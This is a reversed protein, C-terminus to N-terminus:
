LMIWTPGYKRSDNTWKQKSYACTQIQLFSNGFFFLGWTTGIHNNIDLMAMGILTQSWLKITLWKPKRFQTITEM